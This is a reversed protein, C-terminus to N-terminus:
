TTPRVPKGPDGVEGRAGKEAAAGQLALTYLSIWSTYLSITYYVVINMFYGDLICSYVPSIVTLWHIYCVLVNKLCTMLLLYCPFAKLSPWGTLWSATYRPVMRGQSERRDKQGWLARACACRLLSAPDVVIPQKGLFLTVYAHM